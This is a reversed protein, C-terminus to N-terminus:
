RSEGRWTTVGQQSFTFEGVTMGMALLKEAVIHKREFECVPVMGHCVRLRTGPPLGACLDAAGVLDAMRIRPPSIAHQQTPRTIRPLGTAWAAILHPITGDAVTNGFLLSLRPKAETGTRWLTM